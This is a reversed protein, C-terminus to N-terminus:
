LHVLYCHWLLTKRSVVGGRVQKGPSEKEGKADLAMLLMFMRKQTVCERGGGRKLLKM